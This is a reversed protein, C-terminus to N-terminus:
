KVLSYSIVFLNNNNGYIDRIVSKLEALTMNEQHAHFDSLQDFHIPCVSIIKLACFWRGDEHTSVQVISNTQYDKEAEDRITITKKGSLIDAEFREFFTMESLSM